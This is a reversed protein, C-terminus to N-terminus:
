TEKKEPNPYISVRGHLIRHYKYKRSYVNFNNEKSFQVHFTDFRIKELWDFQYFDIHGHFTPVILKKDRGSENIRNLIKTISCPGDFRCDLM